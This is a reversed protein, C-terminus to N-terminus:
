CDMWHAYVEGKSKAIQINWTCWWNRWDRLYGLRYGNGVREEMEDIVREFSRDLFGGIWIYGIKQEYAWSVSLCNKKGESM